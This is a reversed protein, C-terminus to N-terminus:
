SAELAFSEGPAYRIAYGLIEMDQNVGSQRWEVQLGRGRDEIPAEIYKTDAESGIVDTGM